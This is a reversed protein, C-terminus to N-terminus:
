NNESQKISRKEGKSRIESDEKTIPDNLISTHQSEKVM